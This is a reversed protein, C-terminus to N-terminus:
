DQSDSKLVRQPLNQFKVSGEKEFTIVWLRDFESRPWKHPANEVGFAEAIQPIVSHAWSILVMKDEYRPDNLVKQVMKPYQTRTFQDEIPLHLVHALPEITQIPRLSSREHKPRQAYIAAPTGFQLVRPDELFLRVLGEAREYGKESLTNGRSPKEAHRIIIVQAPTAHASAFCALCLLFKKM